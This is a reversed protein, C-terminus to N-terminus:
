VTARMACTPGVTAGGDRDRDRERLRLRSVSVGVRVRVGVGVRHLGVRVGRGLGVVKACLVEGIVPSGSSLLTSTTLRASRLTMQAHCSSLHCGGQRYRMHKSFRHLKLRQKADKSGGAIFVECSKLRGMNLSEGVYDRAHVGCVIWM